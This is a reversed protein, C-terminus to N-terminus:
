PVDIPIAVTLCVGVPQGDITPPAYRWGLVETRCDGVLQRWGTDPQPANVVHVAAVRGSPGVVVDFLLFGFDTKPSPFALPMDVGQGGVRELPATLQSPAVCGPGASSTESRHVATIRDGFWVRTAAVHSDTPRAGRGFTLVVLTLVALFLTTFILSFPRM